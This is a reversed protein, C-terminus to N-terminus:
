GGSLVPLYKWTAPWTSTVGNLFAELIPPFRFKCHYELSPKWNRRSHNSGSAFGSFSGKRSNLRESPTM